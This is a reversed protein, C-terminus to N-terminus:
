TSECKQDEETELECRPNWVFARFFILFFACMHAFLKPWNTAWFLTSSRAGWVLCELCWTRRRHRAASHSTKRSTFTVKEHRQFYWTSAHLGVAFHRWHRGILFRTTLKMSFTRVRNLHHKTVWGFVENHESLELQTFVVSTRRDCVSIVNRLGIYCRIKGVFATKLNWHRQYLAFLRFEISENTSATSVWQLTSVKGMTIRWLVIARPNGCRDTLYVQGIKGTKRDRACSSWCIRASFFEKRKGSKQKSFNSRKLRKLDKWVMRFLSRASRWNSRRQSDGVRRGCIRNRWRYEACVHVCDRAGLFTM